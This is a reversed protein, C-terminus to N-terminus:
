EPNRGVFFDAVEATECPIQSRQLAERLRRMPADALKMAPQRLPGGNYGTLWAQYKWLYRHIFNAGAFTAQEAARAARAPQIQWYIEMAKDYDGDHLHAFYEPIRPGWWEYNSTGMWQMGFLDVWMPSNAELPDSVLIQKDRALKWFQHFGGVGPRAVEHKIAVVNPLDALEILVDPPFGSPHIRGFNWHSAAFLVVGLDTNNCVHASYDYIERATKPYFSNPYGLLLGSVGIQAAAQAMAVTDEATDFTGHLLFHHHGRAENVAIEMFQRMEDLTTGAESVLLAGWFKHAMNQRVDHRIAKENLRKLDHTYSPIIVNCVGRMQAQAWEKAEAKTYLM